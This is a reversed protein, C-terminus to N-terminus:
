QLNWPLGCPHKQNKLIDSPLIATWQGGDVTWQGSDVTWRGSDVTWRGSDVTWRGGDVTWQGGDVTDLCNKIDDNMM